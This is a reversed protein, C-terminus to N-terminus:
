PDMDAVQGFLHVPMLAKVVGGTKRHILRGNRRECETAIRDAISAPSINYTMPDIDCFFPRAGVRAIVGATAFFSFPTTIVEDGVGVDLSMLGALLADTGSSVGVGYGCQSYEAVRSELEKVRPGLIFNQEACVEQLAELIESEIQRYQSKLDLLPVTASQNVEQRPHKMGYMSLQM